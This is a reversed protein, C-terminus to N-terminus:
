EFSYKELNSLAVEKREIGINGEADDADVDDLLKAFEEKLIFKAKEPCKSYRMSYFGSIFYVGETPEKALSLLREDALRILKALDEAGVSKLSFLDVDVIKVVENLVLISAHGTDTDNRFESKMDSLRSLLLHKSILDM